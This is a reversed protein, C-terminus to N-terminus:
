HKMGDLQPLSVRPHRLGELIIVPHAMNTAWDGCLKKLLEAPQEISQDKVTRPGDARCTEVQNEGRRQGGGELKVGACWLGLSM